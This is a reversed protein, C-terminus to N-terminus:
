ETKGGSIKENPLAQYVTYVALLTYIIGWISFAWGSPSIKVLWEAMIAPQTAKSFSNSTANIIMAIIFSAGNAVRM